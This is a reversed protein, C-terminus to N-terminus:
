ARTEMSLGMAVSVMAPSSGAVWGARTRAGFVERKTTASLYTAPDLGAMTFHLTIRLFSLM